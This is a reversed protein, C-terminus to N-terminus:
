TRAKYVFLRTYHQGFNNFFRLFEYNEDLLEILRHEKGTALLMELEGETFAAVAARRQVIYDRIIEPNLLHLGECKEREWKASLAYSAIGKEMGPVVFRDAQVPIYTSFAMLEDDEETIHSIFSSAEKLIKVPMTFSSGAENPRLIKYTLLVHFNIFLNLLVIAAVFPSVNKSELKKKEIFDNIIRGALICMAPAILNNYYSGPYGAGRPLLHVTLTVFVIAILYWEFSYLRFSHSKTRWEKCYFVVSLLFALMLFPFNYCNETTVFLIKYFKLFFPSEPYLHTGLFHYRFSEFDYAMYPGYVLGCVLLATMTAVAFISTRKNSTISLYVISIPILPAVSLRVGAALTIFTIAFIVRLRDNLGSCAFYLSLLILFSTLAYIQPVTFHAIGYLGTLYLLSAPTSAERGGRLSAIKITLILGGLALLSSFFRIVYMDYGFTEGITGYVYILLPGQPYAFDIYPAKGSFLLKAAYLYVGDDYTLSRYYIFFLSFLLYCFLIAGTFLYGSHKIQM